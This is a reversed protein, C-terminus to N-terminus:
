QCEMRGKTIPSEAPTWQGMFHVSGDTGKEQSKFNGDVQEISMELMQYDEKLDVSANKRHLTPKKKMAKNMKRRANAGARKM